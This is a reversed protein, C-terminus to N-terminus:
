FGGLVTSMVLLSLRTDAIETHVQTFICGEKVFTVPPIDGKKKKKQYKLVKM